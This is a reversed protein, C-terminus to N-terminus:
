SLGSPYVLLDSPVLTHTDSHGFKGTAEDKDVFEGFRGIRVDCDDWEVDCFSGNIRIANLNM